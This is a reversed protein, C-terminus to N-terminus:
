PIVRGISDPLAVLHNATLATMWYYISTIKKKSTVLTKKKAAARTPALPLASPIAIGAAEFLEGSTDRPTPVQHHSPRGGVRVETVCAFCTSAALAIPLKVPKIIKDDTAAIINAEIPYKPRLFRNPAM